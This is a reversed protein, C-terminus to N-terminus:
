VRERCSARGIKLTLTGSFGMISTSTANRQGVGFNRVKNNNKTLNVEAKWNFLAKVKARTSTKSMAENIQYKNSSDEQMLQFLTLAYINNAKDLEDKDLSKNSSLLQRCAQVIKEYDKRHYYCDLTNFFVSERKEPDAISTYFNLAASYKEMEVSLDGLLVRLEDSYESKPYRNLFEEGQQFVIPFEKEEYFETIRRLFLAEEETVQNEQSFARCVLMLISLFVIM